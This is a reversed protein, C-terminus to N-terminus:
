LHWSCKRRSTWYMIWFGNMARFNDFDRSM